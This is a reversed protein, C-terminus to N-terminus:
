RRGLGLEALIAKRCIAQLERLSGQEDPSLRNRGTHVIKSRTRYLEPFRRLYRRRETESSGILYAIRNALLQTVSLGDAVDAEGLLAELAVTAQIYAVLDSSACQSEFYWQCARALRPNELAQIAHALLGGLHPASLANPSTITTSARLDPIRAAVDRALQRPPLQSWGGPEREYARVAIRDVRSAQQEQLELIGLALFCGLVTTLRGRMTEVTGTDIFRAVYGDIQLRLYPTGLQWEIYDGFIMQVLPEGLSAREDQPFSVVLSSDATVIEVGYAAAIRSTVMALNSSVLVPPLPVFFSYTRPLSFLEDVLRAAADAPDRYQAFDTLLVSGTPMQDGRHSWLDETVELFVFLSVPFAGIIDQLHATISNASATPLAQDAAHLPENDRHQLQVGDTVTCERVWQDVLEILRAKLRPDLMIPMIAETSRKRRRAKMAWTKLTPSRRYPARCAQDVATPASADGAQCGGKGRRKVDGGSSQKGGVEGGEYKPRM